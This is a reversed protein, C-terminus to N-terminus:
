RQSNAESHASEQRAPSATKGPWLASLISLAMLGVAVIDQWHITEGLWIAGSFVGLVPIMMVSLTSAVPPLDRALMFWVAHAFGFVLIANYAVAFLTGQPMAFWEPSELAFALATMVVSTLATMWFSITLTPVALRTRRLSQTGIAWGAAAVLALGVAGPNGSLRNFEHWLLLFVGLTAAGVGFWSRRSLVNNYAVAGFLASFIPMTYGLIAARGSSLSNVALIICAHWIVMNTFTLWALERWHAGGPGAPLRFPIRLVLLAVALVPLGLWMSLTRFSLPPFGGVGLKMVPWNLGWVLTLLVLLILQRRSLM